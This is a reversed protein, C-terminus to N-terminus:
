SQVWPQSTKFVPEPGERFGVALQLTVGGRYDRIGAQEQRVAELAVM